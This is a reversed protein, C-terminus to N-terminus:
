RRVLQRVLRERYHDLGPVDLEPVTAADDWRRLAEADRAWPNQEFTRREDHSMPGGQLALSEQSAVSLLAVYGPERACLYRKAAVHLRIPETVARNLYESL